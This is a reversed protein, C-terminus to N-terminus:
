FQVLKPRDYDSCLAKPPASAIKESSDAILCQHVTEHVLDDIYERCYYIYFIIFQRPDTLLITTVILLLRNLKAFLM